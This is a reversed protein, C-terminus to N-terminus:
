GGGERYYTEIYFFISIRCLYTHWPYVACLVVIIISCWRVVGVVAGCDRWVGRRGAGAVNTGGVGRDDRWPGGRGM